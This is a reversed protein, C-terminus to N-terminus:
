RRVWQVGLVWVAGGGLLVFPFMFAAAAWESVGLGEYEVPFRGIDIERNGLSFRMPNNLGARDNTRDSLERM